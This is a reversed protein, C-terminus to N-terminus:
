RRGLDAVHFLPEPCSPVAHLARERIAPQDDISLGLPLTDGWHWLGGKLRGPADGVIGGELILLGSWPEGDPLSVQGAGVALRVEDSVRVEILFDGAGDSSLRLSINDAQPAFSAEPLTRALDRLSLPGLVPGSTSPHSFSARIAEISPILCWLIRQPTPDPAGSDVPLRVLHFGGGVHIWDFDSWRSESPIVRQSLFWRMEWDSRRLGEHALSFAASAILTLIVLLLLVMPLAMGDPARNM